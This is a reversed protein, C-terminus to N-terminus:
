RRIKEQILNQNTVTMVLYKFRSVNEFSTEIYCVINHHQHNREMTTIARTDNRKHTVMSMFNVVRKLTVSMQQNDSM